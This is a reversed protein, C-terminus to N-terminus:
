REESSARRWQRRSREGVNAGPVVWARSRVRDALRFRGTSSRAHTLPRRAEDPLRVRDVTKRRHRSRQRAPTVAFSSVGRIRSTTTSGATPRRATRATRSSASAGPARPKDSRDAASLARVRGLGPPEDAHVPAWREASADPHQRWRARGQDRLRDCRLGQPAILGDDIGVTSFADGVFVEGNGDDVLGLKRAVRLSAERDAVSPRATKMPSRAEQHPYLQRGPM